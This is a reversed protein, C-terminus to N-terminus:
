KARSFSEEYDTILKAFRQKSRAVRQKHWYTFLLIAVGAVSPGAIWEPQRERIALMVLFAMLAATIWAYATFFPVVKWWMPPIPRGSRPDFTISYLAAM